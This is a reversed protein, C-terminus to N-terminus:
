GHVERRSDLRVAASTRDAYYLRNFLLRPCTLRLAISALCPCSLSLHRSDLDELSFLVKSDDGLSTVTEIFESELNLHGLVAKLTSKLM